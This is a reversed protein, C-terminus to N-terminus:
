KSGNPVQDAKTAAKIGVGICVCTIITCLGISFQQPDFVSDDKLHYWNAYLYVAVSGSGVVKEWAYTINDAQTHTDRFVKKILSWLQRM